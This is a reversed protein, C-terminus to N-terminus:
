RTLDKWNECIKTGMTFQPQPEAAAPSGCRRMGGPALNVNGQWVFHLREQNGWSIFLYHSSFCSKRLRKIGQLFSFFIVMNRLWIRVQQAAREMWVCIQDIITYGISNNQDLLLSFFLIVFYCSDQEFFFLNKNENLRIKQRKTGFNFFM